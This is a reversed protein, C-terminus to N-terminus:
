SYLMERAPPKLPLQLLPHRIWVEFTCDRITCSFPIRQPLDQLGAGGNRTVLDRVEVFGASAFPFSRLDSLFREARRRQYFSDLHVALGCCALVILFASLARLLGVRFRRLNGM